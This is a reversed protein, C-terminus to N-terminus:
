RAMRANFEEPCNWNSLTERVNRAAGLASKSLDSYATMEDQVRNADDLLAKRMSRLDGVVSDIQEVSTATMNAVGARDREAEPHTNTQLQAGRPKRLLDRMQEDIDVLRLDEAEDAPIALNLAM